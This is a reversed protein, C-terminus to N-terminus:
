RKIAYTTLEYVFYIRTTMRYTTVIARRARDPIHDL